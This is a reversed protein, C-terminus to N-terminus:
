EEEVQFKMYHFKLHYAESNFDKRYNELINHAKSTLNISSVREVSGEEEDSTAEQCAV